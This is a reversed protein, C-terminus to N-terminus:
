RKIITETKKEKRTSLIFTSIEKAKDSDKYYQQLCGVLHKKSLTSTQVKNQRVIKKGENIDIQDINRDKMVDVLQASLEKKRRAQERLKKRLQDMEADLTLWERVHDVLDMSVFTM